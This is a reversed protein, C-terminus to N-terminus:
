LLREPHAQASFAENIAPSYNQCFYMLCRGVPQTALDLM